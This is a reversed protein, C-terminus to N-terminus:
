LETSPEVQATLIQSVDFCSQAFSAEVISKVEERTGDRNNLIELLVPINFGCFLLVDSHQIVLEGALNCPTGGMLDVLIIVGDGENLAQYSLQMQKRLEDINSDVSVSIVNIKEQKGMLM